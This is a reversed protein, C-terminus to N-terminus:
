VLELENETEEYIEEVSEPEIIYQKLKEFGYSEVLFEIITASIGYGGIDGFHSTDANKLVEWSPIKNNM